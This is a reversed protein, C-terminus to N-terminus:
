QAARLRVPLPGAGGPVGDLHEGAQERLDAGVTLAQHDGLLNRGAQDGVGYFVGRDLDGVPEGGGIVPIRDAGRHVRRL